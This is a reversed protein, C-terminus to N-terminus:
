RPAQVVEFAAGSVQRLEEHLIPIREDPTVSIAWDIGNDAVLMGYRKLGELIARVPRSFGSTDFDRRLRIREGMRPLNPNTDRSAFHTAPHVYGRRSKRVTVRMAHRVEGRNLEDYRVVAPFVPLGAADSSTWGVPRLRNSKLDFISAQSAHWGTDTKRASYFEYLMRRVPDIVIAHRDGGLNLRDRQVDDLTQSKLREDGRYMQPWGEIPMNGPVPFPGPDSEGPFETIRVNVRPQDPPVLVFGMDLNYRLPKDVGISRIINRSNPHLPWRSIDQNWPNDAPFVQLGELIRDAEPTNFLVPGTLAPEAAKKKSPKLQAGLLGPLAAAAWGFRVLLTRRDIM